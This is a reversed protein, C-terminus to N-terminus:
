HTRAKPYASADLLEQTVKKLDTDAPILGQEKLIEGSAEINRYDEETIEPHAFDNRDFARRAVDPDLKAYQAFLAIAEERHDAAYQRAWENAEGILRVLEPNDRAFDERVNQVGGTILSEDRYFFRAQRRIEIISLDPDLGAWADVRGAEL